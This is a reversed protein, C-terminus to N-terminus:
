SREAGSASTTEAAEGLWSRLNELSREHNSATLLGADLLREFSKQVSEGPIMSMCGAVFKARFGFDEVEGHWGYFRSDVSRPSKKDLWFGTTWPDNFIIALYPGESLFGVSVDALRNQCDGEEKVTSLLWKILNELSDSSSTVLGTKGLTRIGHRIPHMGNPLSGLDRRGLMEMCDEFGKSRYGFDKLKARDRGEEYPRRQMKSFTTAPGKSLDRTFELVEEKDFVFGWTSPPEYIFDLPRHYDRTELAHTSTSLQESLSESGSGASVTDTRSSTQHHALPSALVRPSLSSILGQTCFCTMTMRLLIRALM